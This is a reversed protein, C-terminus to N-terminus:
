AAKAAGPQAAKVASDVYTEFKVFNARFMEVLKKATVDFDKQDAWTKAPDLLNEEIGPVDLPVSVGFNPDTRFRAKALSGDLAAALLKRTVRIPM